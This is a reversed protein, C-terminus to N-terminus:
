ANQHQEIVDRVIQFALGPSHGRRGLMSVLRRTHKDREKRADPSNGAPLSISSVKKEVLRRAVDEEEEASVQELAQEIHSESVGKDQLERRLAARGLSKLEHRSRVWSRAFAADDILQLEELRDLVATSTQRDFEKEELASALQARSKPSGTLKRLVLAKAKEYDESESLPAASVSGAPDAAQRDAADEQSHSAEVRALAERLAELKEEHTSTEAM